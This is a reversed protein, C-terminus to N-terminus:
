LCGELWHFIQVSKLTDSDHAEPFQHSGSSVFEFGIYVNQASCYWPPRETGIRILDDYANKSHNMCCMQTFERGKRRLFAEVDMRTTGPKLAASYAGLEAHYGAERQKARAASHACAVAVLVSACCGISLLILPRM